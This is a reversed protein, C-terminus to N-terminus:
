AKINGAGIFLNKRDQETLGLATALAILMESDFHFEQLDDWARRYMAPTDPHALVDEVADFLSGDGHPTQHMAERGQFRSVVTPVEPPAEANADHAAVVALIADRQEPTLAENVTISGDLNIVDGFNVGNESWSFPLGVLGAAALESPFSPGLTM